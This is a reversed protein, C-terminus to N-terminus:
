AKRVVQLGRCGHWIQVDEWGIAEQVQRRAKEVDEASFWHTEDVYVVLVDGPRLTIAGVEELIPETKSEGSATAPVLAAGATGFFIRRSMTQM